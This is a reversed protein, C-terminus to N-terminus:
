SFILSPRDYIYILKWIFCGTNKDFKFSVKIKEDLTEFFVWMYIEHFDAQHSDLQEKRVSPHISPCVYMVFSITAKWM